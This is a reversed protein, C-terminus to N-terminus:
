KVEYEIHKLFSRLDQREFLMGNKRANERAVTAIEAIQENTLDNFVKQYKMWYKRFAKEAKTLHKANKAMLYRPKQFDYYSNLVTMAVATRFDERYGRGELEESLGMRTLIVDEYTRLVFDEHNSRVVSNDNWRWLYIPTTISKMKGEHQTVSYTLMNFYGDEHINMNEDFRLNHKVLFERRYVKGHMFTLDQDHPVIQPNGDKNFTEEVFNSVLYDFGEQMAAFVLHLGYTNLFGDDADCFMVYDANSGDLGANRASSVGGHEKVIYDVTFPYEAFHFMANEASGFLACENGDNVLIVRLNDFLIGRQVAITDLLYKCVNWPEKYHPVIIDLTNM